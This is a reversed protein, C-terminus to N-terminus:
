IKKFSEIMISKEGNRETVKGQLAIITDNVLSERMEEYLKSFIVADISGTYDSIKIFAMRTNKKTTVMR